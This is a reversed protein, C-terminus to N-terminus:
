DYRKSLAQTGPVHVSMPSAAPTRNPAKELASAM